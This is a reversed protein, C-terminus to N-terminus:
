MKKPIIVLFHFYMPSIRFDEKGCGSSWNWGFEDRTFPIWTQVLSSGRKKEVQSLLYFTFICQHFELIKYEVVVQGIEVLSPAFLSKHNEFVFYQAKKRKILKEFIVTNISTFRKNEMLECAYSNVNKSFKLPELSSVIDNKSQASERWELCTWIKPACSM